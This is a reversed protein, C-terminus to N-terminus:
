ARFGRCIVVLAGAGAAAWWRARRAERALPGSRSCTAGGSARSRLSGTLGSSWSARPRMFATPPSSSPDTMAESLDYVDVFAVGAAESEDRVITNFEKVETEADRGDAYGKGQETVYFATTGVTIVREPGGTTEVVEALLAKFQARFDEPTIQAVWDNNGIMLTAVDPRADKFLPLEKATAQEITAGTIAPNAVLDVAVGDETLKRALVAPWAVGEPDAAGDPGAAEGNSNSDGVVAYRLSKGESPTGTAVTSSGGDQRAGGANDDSSGCGLAGLAAVLLLVSVLLRAPLALRHVGCTDRRDRQPSPEPRDSTPSGRWRRWARWRHAAGARDAEDPGLARLVRDWILARAIKGVRCALELTTVLDAHPALDDFAALYADRLRLLRPDDPACSLAHSQMFTLPVLMSAFPHAVVADGWDFFRADVEDGGGDLVNWPHLDNHDVSIAGPAGALEECWAAVQEGMGAAREVARRDDEDGGASEVRVGVAVVAEELRRTLVAPRMDAIGLELMREAHPALARQLRGYRALVGAFVEVLEDGCFREGLPAGGDPLLMWAREADIALPVLVGEPATAGLLEYLGIEFATAPGAAKMWVTGGTTPASLM